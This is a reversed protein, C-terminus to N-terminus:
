GTSCCTEALRAEPVAWLDGTFRVGSLAALDRDAFGLSALYALDDDDLSFAELWDICDEIGAAVLLGRQPPLRRVFLSFTGPATIGRRLYSVAMNLEDDDTLLARGM